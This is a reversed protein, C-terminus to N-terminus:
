QDRESPNEFERTYAVGASFIVVVYDLSMMIQAVVILRSWPAAAYIDGYGVTAATVMSFYLGSVLDLSAGSHAQDIFSREFHRSVYIYLAAFLIVMEFYFTLM